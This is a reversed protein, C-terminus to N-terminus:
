NACDGGLFIGIINNERFKEIQERIEKPSVTPRYGHIWSVDWWYRYVTLAKVKNIKTGLEPLVNFRIWRPSIAGGSVRAEISHNALVAEIRDALYELRQRSLPHASM